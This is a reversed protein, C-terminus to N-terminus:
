TGSPVMSTTLTTSVSSTLRNNRNKRYSPDPPRGRTFRKGLPHRTTTREDCCVFQM